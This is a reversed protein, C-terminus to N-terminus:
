KSLVKLEALLAMQAALLGALVGEEYRFEASLELAPFDNPQLLDDATAQPVIRRAYILLRDKQGAVLEELLGLCIESPINLM